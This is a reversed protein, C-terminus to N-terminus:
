KGNSKLQLITSRTSDDDLGLTVKYCGAALGKTQWNFQFMGNVYTLGTSGPSTLDLALGDGSDVCGPVTSLDLSKFSSVNGALVGQANSLTWKLPITSGAQYVKADAVPSLFGSWSYSVTYTASVPAATNGATDKGGSCTATFSGVGNV